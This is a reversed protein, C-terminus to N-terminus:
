LYEPPYCPIIPPTEYPLRGFAGDVIPPAQFDEVMFGGTVSELDDDSVPIITSTSNM